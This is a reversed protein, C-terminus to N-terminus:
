RPGLWVCIYSTLGVWVMGNNELTLLYQSINSGGANKKKKQSMLISVKWATTRCQQRSLIVEQVDYGSSFSSFFFFLRGLTGKLKATTQSKIKRKKQQVWLM